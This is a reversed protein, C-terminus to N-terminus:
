GELEFVVCIFISRKANTSKASKHFLPVYLLPCPVPDFTAQQRPKINPKHGLSSFYNSIQTQVTTKGWELWQKFELFSRGFEVFSRGFELFSRGFEVFSRGFEVFSRGFELFSRGFEVFSRGFELFSRGFE